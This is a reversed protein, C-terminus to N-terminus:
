LNGRERNSDSDIGVPYLLTVCPVRCLVETKVISTSPPHAQVSSGTAQGAELVFMAAFVVVFLVILLTNRETSHM